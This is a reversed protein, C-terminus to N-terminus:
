NSNSDLENVIDLFASVQKLQESGENRIIWTDRSLPAKQKNILPIKFVKPDHETLSIDPLIAYGIGHIAMQKCTEIQDVLITRKPPTNFQSYWWDQIEQYYNSLSKFQIFPKDTYQLEEITQITTDVLYLDDSFLRQKKGKWEAAGRVIGIHFHEDYLYRLVESSWGTVLSIKVQPYREVYRKLVNPLWYQGIISAVALKLTGYVETGLTLIEEKVNDHRELTEKVYRIIMEGAPTITLGRQSRLFIHAGWKGEISQLRQSLAPQSVFLRESAKRMNLEEALVALVEFDSLQM